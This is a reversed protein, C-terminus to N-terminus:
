DEFSNKDGIYAEAIHLATIHLEHVATDGCKCERDNTEHVWVGNKNRRYYMGQNFGVGTMKQGPHKVVLECVEFLDVERCIIGIGKQYITLSDMNAHQILEDIELAVCGHSKLLEEIHPFQMSKKENLVGFIVINPVDIIIGGNTAGDISNFAESIKKGTFFATHPWHIKVFSPHYEPLELARKFAPIPLEPSRVDPIGRWPLGLLAELIPDEAVPPFLDNTTTLGRSKAFARLVTRSTSIRARYYGHPVPKRMIPGLLWAAQATTRPRFGEVSLSALDVLGVKAAVSKDLIYLYGEGDEFDYRAVLKRLIIPQEEFDESIELKFEEFYKHSAFWAGVAPNSSFDIYFSRWGYHQLLAHQFGLDISKDKTFVSLVNRAYKSWKVMESPICGKRDFSTIISPKGETEYHSTQGRYLVDEGFSDILLELEHLTDVNYQKM